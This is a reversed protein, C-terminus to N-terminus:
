CIESYMVLKLNMYSLREDSWEFTFQLSLNLTKLWNVFQQAQQQSCNTAAIMDDIFRKYFRDSDDPSSDDNLVINRFQESPLINVEEFKAAGLCATDPAHKKGISTGGEQKFVREGFTFYNYKRTIELLEMTKQTSPKRRDTRSELYDRVASLVLDDPM